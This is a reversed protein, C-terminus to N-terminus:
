KFSYYTSYRIGNLGGVGVVLLFLFCCIKCGYWNEKVSVGDILLKVTYNEILTVCKSITENVFCYFESLFEGFFHVLSPSCAHCFTVFNTRIRNWYCLNLSNLQVSSVSVCLLLFLFTYLVFYCSNRKREDDDIKPGDIKYTYSNIKSCEFLKNHYQTNKCFIIQRQSLEFDIKILIWQKNLM